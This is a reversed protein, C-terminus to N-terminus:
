WFYIIQPIKFIATKSFQNIICSVSWKHSLKLEEIYDWIHCIDGMYLWLSLQLPVNYSVIQISWKLNLVFSAFNLLNNLLKTLIFTPLRWYSVLFWNNSILFIENQELVTEYISFTEFEPHRFQKVTNNLNRNRKKYKQRKGSFQQRNFIVTLVSHFIDWIQFTM